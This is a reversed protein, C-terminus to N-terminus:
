KNPLYLGDIGCRIWKYLDKSRTDIYVFGFPTTVCEKYLRQFDEYSIRTAVTKSIERMERVQGVDFIFFDTCNKRILKPVDFFSQTIYIVSCNKKRSRIFFEAIKNQNKVTIMDDIIILNQFQEEFSDVDPLDEFKDYFHSITVDYNQTEQEIDNQIKAVWDQLKLYKDETNVMKSVVYLRDWYVLDFILNFTINTKGSASPGTILLRFPHQPALPNKNIYEKHEIFNDYNQIEIM